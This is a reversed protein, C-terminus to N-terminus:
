CRLAQALLLRAKEWDRRVTRETLGLANAIEPETMGSFFRMEIVQALRTDVRKLQQIAERVAILKEDECHGAPGMGTDLEVQMAGGGHVEANNRRISDVVVHRMLRPAFRLFVSWQTAGDNGSEAFRIYSEHILATTDLLADRGFRLRSRAIARLKPYVSSAANQNV